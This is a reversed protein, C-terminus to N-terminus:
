TIISVLFNGLLSVIDHQSGSIDIPRHYSRDTLACHNQLIDKLASLGRGANRKPLFCGWLKTMKMRKSNFMHTGLRTCGSVCASGSLTSGMIVRPRRLHKRCRQVKQRKKPQSARPKHRERSVKFKFHSTTRRREQRRASTDSLINKQGSKELLKDIDTVRSNCYSILNLNKM